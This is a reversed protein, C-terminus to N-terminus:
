LNIELPFVVERGKYGTGETEQAWMGQSIPNVIKTRGEAPPPQVPAKAKSSPCLEPPLLPGVRRLLERSLICASLYKIRSEEAEQAQGLLAACLLATSPVILYYFPM